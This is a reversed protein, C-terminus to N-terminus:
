SKEREHWLCVLRRGCRGARLGARSHGWRDWKLQFGSVGVWPSLRLFAKGGPLQGREHAPSRIAEGPPTELM